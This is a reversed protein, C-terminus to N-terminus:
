AEGVTPTVVIRRPIPLMQPLMDDHLGAVHVTYSPPSAYHVSCLVSVGYDHRLAAAETLIPVDIHVLCDAIDAGVNLAQELTHARLLIGDDIAIVMADHPAGLADLWEASRRVLCTRPPHAVTPAPASSTPTTPAPAPVLDDDGKESYLMRRADGLTAGPLAQLRVMLWVMRLAIRDLVYDIARVARERLSPM